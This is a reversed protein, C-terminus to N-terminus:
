FGQVKVKFYGSLFVPSLRFVLKAEENEPFSLTIINQGARPCFCSHCWCTYPWILAALQGGQRCMFGPARKGRAGRKRASMNASGCCQIIISGGRGGVCVCM